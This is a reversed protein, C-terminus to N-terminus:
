KIFDIQFTAFVLNEEDRINLKHRKDLNFTFPQFEVPENKSRFSSPPRNLIEAFTPVKEAM